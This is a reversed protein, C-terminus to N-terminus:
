QVEVRRWEVNLTAQITYELIFFSNLTELTCSAMKSIFLSSLIATTHEDLWFLLM